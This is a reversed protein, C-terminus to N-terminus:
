TSQEPLVPFGLAVLDERLREVSQYRIGRIGIARAPELNEDRDDIFLTDSPPVGMADIVHRYIAPEPKVSRVEGSFVQHDFDAVWAFTKRVHDAMDTPMNSLIATKFGASRLKQFWRIMPENPRSWMDLDVQRLREVTRDDISVGAEAAFKKWYSLPLLDGRDYAARTKLYIPLFSQSDIQFIRALYEINETTPLHCLVEGYDLIVARIGSATQATANREPTV